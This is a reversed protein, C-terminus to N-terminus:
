CDHNYYNREHIYTRQFKYLISIYIIECNKMNLLLFSLIYYSKRVCGFNSVTSSTPSEGPQRQCKRSSLTRTRRSVKWSELVAFLLLGVSYKKKKKLSLYLRYMSSPLYLSKPLVTHSPTPHCLVRSM